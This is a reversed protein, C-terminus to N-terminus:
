LSHIQFKAVSLATSRKYSQFTRTESDDVPSEPLQTGVFRPEIRDFSSSLRSWLYNEVCALEEIEWHQYNELFFYSDSPMEWLKEGSCRIDSSFIQTYLEYRYFARQLRGQETSSLPAYQPARDVPFDENGSWIRGSENEWLTFLGDQSSSDTQVFATDGCRRLHFNSRSTLDEIFYQSVQYLQCLSVVTGLSYHQEKQQVTRHRQSEYKRLFALVEKRDPGKEKLQSAQVM